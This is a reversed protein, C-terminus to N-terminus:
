VLMCGDVLCQQIAGISKFLCIEKQWRNDPQGSADPLMSTLIQPSTPQILLLIISAAFGTYPRPLLRSEPHVM